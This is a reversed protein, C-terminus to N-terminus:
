NLRITVSSGSVPRIENVYLIGNSNVNNFTVSSTSLVNQNMAYLENAGNGTNITAFSPSSSSLVAQNMPFVENAGNGTNITSVGSIANNGLNLSGTMTDGATNIFRSDYASGSEYSSILESAGVSDVGLDSASISEDVIMGSSISNAQNENVYINDLPIGGILITDFDITNLKSIGNPNLYYTNDNHDFITTATIAAQVLLSDQFIFGSTTEDSGFVGPRVDEASHWIGNSESYGISFFLISVLLFQIFKKIM